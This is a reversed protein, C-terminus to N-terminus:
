ATVGMKTLASVTEAVDHKTRACVSNHCGEAALINATSRGIGKTSGVVAYKALSAVREAIHVDGAPCRILYANM